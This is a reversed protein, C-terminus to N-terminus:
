QVVDSVLKNVLEQMAADKIQSAGLKVRQVRAASGLVPRICRLMDLKETRSLETTALLVAIMGLIRASTAASSPISHTQLSPSSPAQPLEEADNCDDLAIDLRELLGFLTTRVNALHQTTAQNIVMKRTEELETKQTYYTKALFVLAGFSFVPNLLGAFYDGFQGWADQSPPLLPYYPSFAAVYVVIVVVAYVIALVTITQIPLRAFWSNARPLIKM